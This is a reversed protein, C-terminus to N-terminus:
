QRRSSTNGTFGLVKLDIERGFKDVEDQLAQMIRLDGATEGPGPSLCHMLTTHLIAAGAFYAQRTEDVQQASATAPVCLRRYSEWGSEIPKKM